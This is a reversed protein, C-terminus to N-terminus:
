EVTVKLIKDGIQMGQVADMGATVMGFNTYQKNLWSADKKTIFFQADNSVKIDGGRAVGVSGIVFPKDNLETPMNGGGTGDGKPDGGQLVWDEVRHFTKGNYFGSQAKKIFNAVTKPADKDYFEITINGKTTELIATKANPNQAKETPKPEETPTASEGAAPTASVSASQDVAPTPSTTLAVPKKAPEQNTLFLVGLVGVIVLATFVFIKDMFYHIYYVFSEM